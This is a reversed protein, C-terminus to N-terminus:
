EESCEGQRAKDIDCTVNEAGEPEEEEEEEQYDLKNDAAAAAEFDFDVHLGCEKNSEGFGAFRGSREGEDANEPKSTTMVDGISTYGQDYLSNYPVNNDRIYSWVQDYSWYALPNLKWRGKSSHFPSSSKAEASSYMDSGQPYPEFELVDLKVREGGQSRRRGTIWMVANWEELRQWMPELKTVKTYLKPDDKWLTSSYSEEFEEKSLIPEEIMDLPKTITLHLSSSKYHSQVTEYFTYSEPFLHLTDMTIVPITDLLNHISLQDLIVLGTPGFSTAQVLPHSDDGLEPSDHLHHHAWRLIFEPDLKALEGNVESLEQPTTPLPMAYLKDLQKNEATTPNTSSDDGVKRQRQVRVVASIIALKMIAGLIWKVAKNQRFLTFKSSASSTSSMDSSDVVEKPMDYDFSALTSSSSLMSSSRLAPVPSEPSSSRFLGPVPSESRTKDTTTLHDDDTATSTNEKKVFTPSADRKRHSRTKIVM